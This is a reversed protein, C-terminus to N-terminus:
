WTGFDTSITLNWDKFVVITSDNVINPSVCITADRTIRGYSLGPLIEWSLGADYSIYFPDAGEINALITIVVNDNILQPFIEIDIIDISSLGFNISQWTDGGDTSKYIGSKNLVAFLTNDVGFNPSMEIDTIYRHFFPAQVDYQTQPFISQTFVFFLILIVLLWKVMKM